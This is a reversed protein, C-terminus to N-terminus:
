KNQRLQGRKNKRKNRKSETEKEKSDTEDKVDNANGEVDGETADFFESDAPEALKVTMDIDNPAVLVQGIKHEGTKEDIMQIIYAMDVDTPLGLAEQWHASARPRGGAKATAEADRVDVVVGVERKEGDSSVSASVRTGVTFRLPALRVCGDHDMPAWVHYYGQAGDHPDICMRYASNKPTSNMKNLPDKVDDPDPWQTVIVGRRWVHNVAAEVACGVGFRLVHNDAERSCGYQKQLKGLDIDNPNAPKASAPKGVEMPM